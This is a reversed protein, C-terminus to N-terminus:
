LWLEFKFLLSSMTMDRIPYFFVAEVLVKLKHVGDPISGLVKKDKVKAAGTEGQVPTGASPEM